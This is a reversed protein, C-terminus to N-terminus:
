AVSAEQIRTFQRLQEDVPLDALAKMRNLGYHRVDEALGQAGRWQTTM